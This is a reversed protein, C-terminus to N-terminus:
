KTDPKRKELSEEQATSRNEIHTDNEESGEPEVSEFALDLGEAMRETDEGRGGQTQPAEDVGMASDRPDAALLSEEGPKTPTAREDESVIELPHAATNPKAKKAAWKGLCRQSVRTPKPREAKPGGPPAVPEPEQIETAPGEEEVQMEDDGAKPQSEVPETGREENQVGDVEGVSQSFQGEPMSATGEERRNVGDMIEVFEEDTMLGQKKATENLDIEERVTEQPVHEVVPMGEVASEELHDQKEKRLREAREEPDSDYYAAIDEVEM